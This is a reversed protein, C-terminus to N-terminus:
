REIMVPYNQDWRSPLLPFESLKGRKLEFFYKILCIKLIRRNRRRRKIMYNRFKERGGTLHGLDVGQKKFCSWNIQSQFYVKNITPLYWSKILDQSSMLYNNMNIGWPSNPRVWLIKKPKKLKSFVYCFICFYRHGRSQTWPSPPHFEVGYNQRFSLFFILSLHRSYEPSWRCYFRQNIKRTGKM